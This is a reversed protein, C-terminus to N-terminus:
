LRGETINNINTSKWLNIYYIYGSCFAVVVCFLLGSSYSAVWVISTWRQSTSILDQICIPAANRRRAINLIVDFLFGPITKLVTFLLAIHWSTQLYLLYCHLRFISNNYIFLFGILLVSPAVYGDILIPNVSPLSPLHARRACLHTIFTNISVLQIM